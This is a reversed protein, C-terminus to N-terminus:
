RAVYKKGNKIFIGKRPSTAYPQGALNYLGHLANKTEAPIGKVATDDTKTADLKWAKITATTASTSFAEAETQGADTPFFRVSYAWRDSVFIDAISGDIFVHLKLTEGPQPKVPLKAEYVGNYSGGDNSRRSLATLDLVLTGDDTHYSLTAQGNDSKLFHFGMEGTGVVFEGLLEIQRGCVPQLSLPGSLTQSAEFCSATRMVALGSFPKQRLEGDTGISIERPLSYNHAWGMEANTETPLKDPVIGLMLTKGDQKFISPSLLGYGDKSIGNMELTGPQEHDPAFTGDENVKGTWYLTRVGTNMGLPTVTFLWRGGGMDTLNPMEWFTGHQVANTGRFFTTGDNSWGGNEYRHLTCAGIGDKGTGVIIYRNGCSTFFYPDRFDDSLGSPRGNIIIGQKDWSVLGKDEPEAAAIVARGNDVATYLAHTSGNDEYVCGSWCGKIDYAEGPALAIPEETWHCLNDSSIHGWHLRAMYPGNANKQFFIHYRGDSYTLGHCENTWGGSPMGHFQPRWLSGAYRSAPYNFDPRSADIGAALKSVQEASLSENYLVIDDILGCFTNIHFCGAKLEAEAKGIMFPNNSNVRVDSRSMKCFGIAEGNLYLSAKNATKDLVATVVNWRGCKLKRAGDITFLFGNAYASAFRFRLAGQSSLELAFGERSEEDLNGFINTYTPVNEAEATNMMPYTEAALVISLSLQSTSFSGTPLAATIYNSYGDFRLAEGDLGGVHCVPLQSHVTFPQQSIEDYVMGNAYSMDLHVAQPQAVVTTAPVVAMAAALLHKRIKNM